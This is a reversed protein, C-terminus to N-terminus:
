DDVALEGAPRASSIESRRQALARQAAAAVVAPAEHEVGTVLHDLYAAITRHRARADAYAAGRRARRLSRAWLASSTRARGIMRRIVLLM